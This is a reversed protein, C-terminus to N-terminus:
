GGDLPSLGGLPSLLGGSVLGVGLGVCGGILIIRLGGSLGADVGGGGTILYHPASAM